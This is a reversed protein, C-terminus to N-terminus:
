LLARSHMAPMLCLRAINAAAHMCMLLRLYALSHQCPWSKLSTVESCTDCTKTVADCAQQFLHERENLGNAHLGSHEEHVDKAERLHLSAATTHVQAQAEALKSRLSRLVVVQLLITDHWGNWVNAVKSVLPHKNIIVM